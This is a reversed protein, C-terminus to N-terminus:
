WSTQRLEGVLCVHVISATALGGKDYIVTVTNYRGFACFVSEDGDVSHGGCIVIFGDAEYNIIKKGM